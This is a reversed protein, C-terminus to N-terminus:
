FELDRIIRIKDPDKLKTRREKYLSFILDFAEAREIGNKKRIKEAEEFINEPIRTVRSKKKAM